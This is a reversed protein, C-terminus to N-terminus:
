KLIYLYLSISLSLTRLMNRMCLDYACLRVAVCVSWVCAHAPLSPSCLPMM